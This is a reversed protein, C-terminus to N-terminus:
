MKFVELEAFLTETIQPPQCTETIRHMNQTAACTHLLTFTRSGASTINPSELISVTFKESWMLLWLASQHAWQCGHFGELYATGCKHVMQHSTIRHCM